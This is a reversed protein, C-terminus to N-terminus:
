TLDLVPKVTRGSADFLALAARWDALPFVAAPQGARLLRPWLARFWSQWVDPPVDIHERMHFRHWTAGGAPPRFGAGSLLGYSVFDAGPRMAALITEAVGGGVADFVVDAQRAAAAIGATDDITVPDIGARRLAEHRSGARHVGAVATAGAEWAWCALLGACASGAATVLVRRGTAPWRQLMLYAALPNIYARAAIDDSVADPVPVLWAPDADVVEQWTGDGRLPLVRRGDETRGVGEYGAVLPPRVRHRYAGTIPILDSPNVPALAMRVRVTGARPAALPLSELALTDAPPGFARFWLGRNSTMHPAIPQM